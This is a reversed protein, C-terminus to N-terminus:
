ATADAARRRELLVRLEEFFNFSGFCILAGTEGGGLPTIRLVSSAARADSRL